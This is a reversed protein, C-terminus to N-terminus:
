KLIWRIWGPTAFEIAVGGSLGITDWRPNTLVRMARVEGFVRFAGTARGVRVWPGVLMESELRGATGVPLDFLMFRNGILLGGSLSITADPANALGWGALIDITQVDPLDSRFVNGDADITEEFGIQGSWPRYAADFRLRGGAYPTDISLRGSPGPSWEDMGRNRFVMGGFVGARITEFASASEVSESGSPLGQARADAPTLLAWCSLLLGCFLSTRTCAQIM